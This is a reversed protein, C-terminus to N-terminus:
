NVSDQPELQRALKKELTKVRPLKLQFNQHECVLLM